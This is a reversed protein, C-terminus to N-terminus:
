VACRHGVEPELLHAGVGVTTHCRYMGHGCNTTAGASTTRILDASADVNCVPTAASCETAIGVDCPDAAATPAFATAAALLALAALLTRM